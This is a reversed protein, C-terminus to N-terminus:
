MGISDTSVIFIVTPGRGASNMAYLMIQFMGGEELDRLTHNRDQGSLLFSQTDRDCPGTYLWTILYNTVTDVQSWTCTITSVTASCQLGMPISPLIVASFHVCVNCHFYIIGSWIKGAVFQVLM